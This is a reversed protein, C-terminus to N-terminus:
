MQRAAHMYIKRLSLRFFLSALRFCLWTCDAHLYTRMCTSAHAGRPARGRQGAADLYACRLGPRGRIGALAGPV